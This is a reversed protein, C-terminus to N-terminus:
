TACALESGAIYSLWTEFEDDKKGEKYFCFIAHEAPIKGIVIWFLWTLLFFTVSPQPNPPSVQM